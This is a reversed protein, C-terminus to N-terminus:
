AAASGASETSKVIWPCSVTSLLIDADVIDADVISPVKTVSACGFIVLTPVKVSKVTVFGITPLMVPAASRFTNFASPIISEAALKVNESPPWTNPKGGIGVLSSAATEFCYTSLATLPSVHFCAAFKNDLTLTGKVPSM